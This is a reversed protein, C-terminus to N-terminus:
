ITRKLIDLAADIAAEDCALLPLLFRLRLPTRGCSFCILGEDFLRYLLEKVDGEPTCAVMGGVGYPGALGIRELGEAFYRHLQANRGEEGFHGRDVLLNIIALSARIASTSSTFTSGLLTRDTPPAFEKSYLTGCVQALKGFTVIDAYEELGLHQFAFLQHTRGFTQVEDILIPINHCRLEDMIAVFFDRPAVRFGGEGQILEFFMVAYQDSHAALLRRLEKVAADTDGFPIYDVEAVEPLSERDAPKDTVQGLTLTRGAFCREFALIRRRPTRHHLALKLANTNALAGTSSLFCHTLGSLESLRRMLELSEINQALNGQMVTNGLAADLRCDLLQPLSHGPTVGIGNIFDYKVSGDGLEVLTGNGIGSGLYRYFLPTGRYGKMEELMEDYSAKREQQPPRPGDLTSSADLMAEQLLARAKAVRPDDQLKQAALPEM